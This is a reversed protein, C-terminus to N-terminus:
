LIQRVLSLLLGYSNLVFFVLFQHKETAWHKSLHFFAGHHGTGLDSIFNKFHVSFETLFSLADVEFIDLAAHIICQVDETGHVDDMLVFVVNEVVVIIREQVVLDESFNLLFLGVDTFVPM